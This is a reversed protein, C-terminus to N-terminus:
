AQREAALSVLLLRYSELSERTLAHVDHHLAELRQWEEDLAPQVELRRRSSLAYRIVVAFGRGLFYVRLRFREVTTVLLHHLLRQLHALQVLHALRFDRPRLPPVPVMASVMRSLATMSMLLRSMNPAFTAVTKLALDLFRKADRSGQSRMAEAREWTVDVLTLEDSLSEEMHEYAAKARPTLLTNWDRWLSRENRRGVFVLFPVLAVVGILAWWIMAM